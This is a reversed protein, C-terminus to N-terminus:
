EVIVGEPSVPRDTYGSPVKEWMYSDGYSDRYVLTEDDVYTVVYMRMMLAGLAMTYKITLLNSDMTWSFVQAEDRNIDDDTDWRLGTGDAIYQEHEAGQLWEGIMLAPDYIVRQKRTFLRLNTVEASDQCVVYADHANDPRITDNGAVPLSDDVAEPERAPVSDQLAEKKHHCATLMTVFALMVLWGRRRM